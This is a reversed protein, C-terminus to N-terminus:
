TKGYPRDLDDLTIVRRERSLDADDITEVEDLELDPHDANWDEILSNAQEIALNADAVADVASSIAWNATEIKGNIEEIEDPLETLAKALASQSVQAKAKNEAGLGGPLLETAPHGEDASPPRRTVHPHISM